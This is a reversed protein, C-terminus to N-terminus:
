VILFDDVSLTTVNQLTAITVPAAGGRGDADWRLVGTASNFLFTGVGAVTAAPSVSVVLQNMELSNGEVLGGGFLTDDIAIKDSGRTFDTVIDRNVALNNFVFLDNDAYAPM